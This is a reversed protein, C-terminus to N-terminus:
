KGKAKLKVTSIHYGNGPLEVVKEVVFIKADKDMIESGKTPTAATEAKTYFKLVGDKEIRYAPVDKAANKSLKGSEYRRISVKEDYSADKTPDKPEDAVVAQESMTIVGLTFTFALFLLARM